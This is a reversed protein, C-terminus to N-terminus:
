KRLELFSKVKDNEILVGLDYHAIKWTGNEKVLVGVGRCDKMWTDIKEDFWAVTYDSNFNWYREITKFDWAKGKDFYPKCFTYFETKNWREKPDTGLFVFQDNVLAFYENLKAQSAMLHWRVVISDCYKEEKKQQVTQASVFQSCFLFILAYFFRGSPRSFVLTKM